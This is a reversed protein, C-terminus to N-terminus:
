LYLPLIELLETKNIANNGFYLCIFEKTKENNLSEIIKQYMENKPAKICILHNEILYEFNGNILCYDMKYNGVGYGRNIVLLQGLIGPKDIHNLKSPNKYKQKILTGDKIDSSYILRTKTEDTTLINKQQNWVVNGITVSCKQEKLTTTNHILTRIKNLHEPIGFITYDQIKCVFDNNENTKGKQLILVITEQATELFSTNDYHVINLINCTESILRRTKDYYLCTLFNRPLVFCLIGNESLLELSKLIFLIFINPRGDFYTHYKSEVDKKPIVFYPPNGIILDYNDAQHNLFDDHILQINEYFELHSLQDFIIQNYEIGTIQINSDYNKILTEIFEGSGCSPELVKQIHLFYPQLFDFCDEIITQPTFYIGFKKKEQKNMNKTLDISLQNFNEVM